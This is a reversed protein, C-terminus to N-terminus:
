KGGQLSRIKEILSVKLKGFTFSIFASESSFAMKTIISTKIGTKTRITAKRGVYYEAVPYAKSKNWLDFSIKHEYSNSKFQNVAEQLVEDSSAKELYYSRVVGEARDPDTGDTTITRDTKLYYNVTTVAQTSTNLWKVMLKALVDVNYIETYASIDSTTVDIPLSNATDKSITITLASDTYEFDLFIGYYERANGLFTKLNYVGQEANVSANLPTHTSAVVTIYDKDLLTDGSSTWNAEIESKIFDEIGTSSILSTTGPFIQRDFLCEAQKLTITYGSSEDSSFDECIGFFIQKNGQKLIVFDDDAVNPKKIVVITSKDAFEIDNSISYQEFQLVDKTSFDVNSKIYALCGKGIGETDVALLVVVATDSNMEFTSVNTALLWDSDETTLYDTNEALIAVASTTIVVRYSKTGITDPFYESSVAGSINEWIAGNLVQWQYSLDLGEAEVMLPQGVYYTGSQPQKIITILAM